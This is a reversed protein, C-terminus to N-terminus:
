VVGNKMSLVETKSFELCADRVSLPDSMLESEWIVLCELGAQAYESIIDKPDELRHWFDGFLEIVKKQGTIKFDPNRKRRISPIWVYFSGDGVYRIEKPLISAMLIEPGTPRRNFHRHWNGMNRRSTEIRKQKKEPPENKYYRRLGESIKIGIGEPIKRGKLRNWHHPLYKPIGFSNRSHKGFHEERVRIEAEKCRGKEMCVPCQCFHKGQNAVVWEKIRSIQLRNHHGHIFRLFEGKVHGCKKRTKTIITTRKGCGCECLKM